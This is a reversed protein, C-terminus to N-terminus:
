PNYFPANFQEVLGLQELLQHWRDRVEGNEPQDQLQQVIADVEDYWAAGEAGSQMREIGADVSLQVTSNEAVCQVTLYWRYPIGPQLSVEPPLTLRIFGPSPPLAIAQRYLREKEDIGANVVFEAQRMEAQAGPVYVWIKPQPSHTTLPNQAPVLASLVQESNKCSESLSGGARTQNPRQSRPKPIVTRQRTPTSQGIKSTRSQSTRPHVTQAIVSLGPYSWVSAMLAVLGLKKLGRMRNM